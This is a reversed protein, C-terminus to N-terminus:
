TLRAPLGPCCITGASFVPSLLQALQYTATKLEAFVKASQTALGCFEQNTEGKPRGGSMEVDDYLDPEQDKQNVQSVVQELQGKDRHLNLEIFVVSGALCPRSIKFIKM